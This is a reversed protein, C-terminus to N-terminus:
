MKVVFVCSIISDGDLIRSQSELGFNESYSDGGMVM